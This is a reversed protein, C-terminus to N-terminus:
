QEQPLFENMPEVVFPLSPEQPENEDGDRAELATQAKCHFFVDLLVEGLCQKNQEAM